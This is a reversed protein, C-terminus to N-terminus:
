GNLHRVKGNFIWKSAKELLEWDDKFFGLGRNHQKCLLGRVLGTEHDHDIHVNSYNTFEEGCIGCKNNQREVLEWFNVGLKRERIRIKNKPNSYWINSRKSYKEKNDKYYKRRTEGYYSGNEIKRKQYYERQYARREEITQGMGKGEKIHPWAKVEQGM